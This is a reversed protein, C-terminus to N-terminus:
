PEDKGEFDLEVTTGGVTLNLKDLRGFALAVIVIATVACNALGIYVFGNIKTDPGTALWLLLIAGAQFATAVMGGGLMLAFRILPLGRLFTLLKPM